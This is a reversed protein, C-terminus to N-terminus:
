DGYRAAVPMRRGAGFAKSTVKLGPAAQRRKYESSRVMGVVRDVTERDFGLGAIEAPPLHEEIYHHLIADLVDYPPLTDQDTQNLKLEASPPKAIVA